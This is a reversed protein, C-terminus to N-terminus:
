AEKKKRKPQVPAVKEEQEDAEVEQEDAEVEQADAEVEQEDAKIEEEQNEKSAPVYGAGLYKELDSDSVFIHVGYKNVLENM